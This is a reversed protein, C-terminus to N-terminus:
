SCIFVKYLSLEAEAGVNEGIAKSQDHREWRITDAPSMHLSFQVSSLNIENPPTTQAVMERQALLLSRPIHKM